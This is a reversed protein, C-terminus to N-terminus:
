GGGALRGTIQALGGSIVPMVARPLLGFFVIAAMMPSVCTLELTTVDRVRALSERAEGFFIRQMSMLLAAMTVLLSGLVVVTAIRHEPFAGLFVLFQATFGALLPAGVAAMGGFLWLWGLRPAQWALGGLRDLSRTRGREEVSGSLLVLMGYSFGHAVLALVAGELAMSSQTGVALLAVAAQAVASYLVLRRVDDQVAAAAAAWLAAVVALAVIVASFHHSMRPFAGLLVRIFGYAGLKLVVGVVLMAVLASGESCADLMWRHLPVVALALGFAALCLWFAAAALGPALTELKQSNVEGLDFSPHGARVAIAVILGVAVTLLGLSTLSATLYRRAARVRGEGGWGALLLYLPVIQLGWFLLLLLYDQACLVGNVGVSALSLLATHLRVREQNRWSAFFASVFLATSLLLLPLSIGDADLHYAAPIPFAEVWSHREVLAGNLGGGGSGESIRAYLALVVLLLGLGAAALGVLRIRGRQDPTREPLLLVILAALAPGWVVMSLLVNNSDTM